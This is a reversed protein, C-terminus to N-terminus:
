GGFAGDLRQIVGEDPGILVRTEQGDLRIEVAYDPGLMLERRPDSAAIRRDAGFRASLSRTYAAFFEQADPPTDWLTRLALAGRTGDTLVTFRDGGWGAAAKQATPPDLFQELLVRTELEGMVNSGLERWDGGLSPALSPLQVPTSAERAAYKEPHLVQETSTPPDKFAADVSPYGGASYLKRVLQFGDTYLFLLEERLVLPAAKLGADADGGQGLSQLEEKTLADRAWAFQTLVADGEMIAHVALNRDFNDPHDPALQKLGFHQDQLAHTYEHAFTIRADAGL